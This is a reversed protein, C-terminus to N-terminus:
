PRRSYVEEPVDRPRIAKIRLKDATVELLQFRPPNLSLPTRRTFKGILWDVRSSFESGVTRSKSVVIENGEVSWHYGTRALPAGSTEFTGDPNFRRVVPGSQWDGVLRPDLNPKPPLLLAVGSALFLIAAGIYWRRRKGPANNM